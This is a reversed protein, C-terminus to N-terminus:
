DIEMIDDNIRKTKVKSHSRYEMLKYSRIILLSVAQKTVNYKKAIEVISLPMCGIGYNLKIIERNRPPLCELLMEVMAKDIVTKEVNVNRDPIIDKVLLDNENIKEDISIPDFSTRLLYEVLKPNMRTGKSIEDITPRIGTRKYINESYNYVKGQKKVMEPLRTERCIENFICRTAYTSFRIGSFIDFTDLANILGIVGYQYADADHPLGFEKMVVYVFRMNNIIIENRLESKGNKFERIMRENEEVSFKEM